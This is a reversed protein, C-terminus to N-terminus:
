IGERLLAQVREVAGRQVRCRDASDYDGRQEHAQARRSLEEACRELAAPAKHALTPLMTEYMNKLMLAQSMAREDGSAKAREATRGQEAAWGALREDLENLEM